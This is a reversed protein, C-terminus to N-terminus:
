RIGLPPFQMNIKTINLILIKYYNDHKLKRWNYQKTHKTIIFKLNFLM